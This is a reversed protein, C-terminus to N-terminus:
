KPQRLIQDGYILNILLRINYDMWAKANKSDAAKELLGMFQSRLAASSGQLIHDRLFYWGRKGILDGIGEVRENTSLQLRLYKLAQQKDPLAKQEDLLAQQKDLFADVEDAEHIRLRSLFAISYEQLLKRNREELSGNVSQQFFLEITELAARSKGHEIGVQPLEMKLLHEFFPLNDEKLARQIREKLWDTKVTGERRYQFIIYPAMAATRPAEALHRNRAAKPYKAYYEQCVEATYLFFDFMEDNMPDRYLVEMAANSIITLYPYTAVEKKAADFLEKLFPLIALPSACAQAVLGILTTLMILVNDIRIAELYDYEMQSRTYDGEVDFYYVLRRYLAKETTGLKFFAKLAKYSVMTYSPLAEFLGFVLSVIFGIIRERILERVRAKWPSSGEHVRFLKAIM